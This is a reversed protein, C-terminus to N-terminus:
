NRCAEVLETRLYRRIEVNTEAFKTDIGTCGVFDRFILLCSRNSISLFVLAVHLATSTWWAWKTSPEALRPEEVGVELLTDAEISTSKSPLLLPLLVQDCFSPERLTRVGYKGYSGWSCDLVSSGLSTGGSPVSLLSKKSRMLIFHQYPRAVVCLGFDLPGNKEVCTPCINTVFVDRSHSIVKLLDNAM